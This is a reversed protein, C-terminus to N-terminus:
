PLNGEEYVKPYKGARLWRYASGTQYLQTVAPYRKGELHHHHHHHHHRHHHHHSMGRQRPNQPLNFTLAQVSKPPQLSRNKIRM